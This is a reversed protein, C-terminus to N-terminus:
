AKKHPGGVQGARHSGAKDAEGLLKRV